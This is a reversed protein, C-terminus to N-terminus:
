ERRGKAVVPGGGEEEREREREGGEECMGDYERNLLSHVVEEKPMGLGELEGLVEHDLESVSISTNRFIPV